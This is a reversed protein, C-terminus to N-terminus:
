DVRGAPTSSTNEILIGVERVIIGAHKEIYEKLSVQLEHTLSPIETEPLLSLRVSITVGGDRVSRVVSVVNRIRNDARCHKQIMADIASLTIFAAGLEGSHVLTSTPEEPKKEGSFILKLTVVLLLLGSIGLILANPIGDYLLALISQLDALPFLRIALAMLLLSIGLTIILLLAFLIRDFLKVKM